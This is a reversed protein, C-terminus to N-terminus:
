AGEDASEGEVIEKSKNLFASLISSELERKMYLTVLDSGMRLLMKNLTKEHPQRDHLERAVKSTRVCDDVRKGEDVVLLGYHPYKALQETAWTEMSAPVAFYFKNPIWVKHRGLARRGPSVEAGESEGYYMHKAKRFDVMFDKRSTKVEAEILTKGDSALIDANFEGVETAMYPLRKKFRWYAMVATKVFLSNV